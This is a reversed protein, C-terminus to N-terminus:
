NAEKEGFLQGATHCINWPKDDAVLVWTPERRPLFASIQLGDKDLEKWQNISMALLDVNGKKLSEVAVEMHSTRDNQLQFLGSKPSDCKRGPSPSRRLSSPTTLVELRPKDEM